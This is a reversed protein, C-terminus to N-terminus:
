PLAVDGDVPLRRARLLRLDPTKVFLHVLTGPPVLTGAEPYQLCVIWDSRSGSGDPWVVGVQLGDTVIQAQAQGLDALFPLVYNGVPM